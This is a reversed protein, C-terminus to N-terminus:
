LLTILTILASNTNIAINVYLRYYHTGKNRNGLLSYMISLTTRIPGTYGGQVYIFNLGFEMLKRLHRM